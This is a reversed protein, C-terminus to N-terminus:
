KAFSGKREHMSSRGPATARDSAPGGPIRVTAPEIRVDPLMREHNTEGKRWNLFPLQWNNAFSHASHVSLSGLLSEWSSHPYTLQDRGFHGSFHRLATFCCCLLLFMSTEPKKVPIICMRGNGTTPFWYTKVKQRTCIVDTIHLLLGMRDKLPHICRCFMQPWHERAREM